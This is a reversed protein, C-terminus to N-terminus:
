FEFKLRIYYNDEQNGRALFKDSPAGTKIDAGAEITMKDSLAFAARPAIYVQPYFYGANLALYLKDNLFSNQLQIIILAIHEVPQNFFGNLEDELKTEVPEPFATSGQNFNIIYQYVLNVQAFTGGPLTGTIQSNLTIDSNKIGIREGLFDETLNVALEEVLALGKFSTGYSGGFTHNRTYITNGAGTLISSYSLGSLDFNPTQETYYSYNLQLDFGPSFHNYALFVSPGTDTLYPDSKFIFDADIGSYVMSITKDPEYDPRPFPVVVLQFSDDFGPYYQLQVLLDARKGEFPDDLSLKNVYEGNINNLPSFVDTMGPSVIKQGVSLDFNEFFASLYAEKLINEPMTYGPDTFLDYYINASVEYELAYDFLGGSITPQFFLRGRLNEYSASPEIDGYYDTFLTGFFDIAFLSGGTILLVLIFSILVVIRKM